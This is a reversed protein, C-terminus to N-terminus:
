GGRKSTCANHRALIHAQGYIVLLVEVADLGQCFYSHHKAGPLFCGAAARLVGPAWSPGKFEKSLADRLLVQTLGIPLRNPWSTAEQFGTCGEHKMGATRVLDLPPKTVVDKSGQCAALCPAISHLARLPRHICSCVVEDLKQLQKETGARIVGPGGAANHSTVGHQM